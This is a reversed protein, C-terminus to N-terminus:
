EPCFADIRAEISGRHDTVHRLYRELSVPESCPATEYLDVLVVSGHLPGGDLIAAAFVEQSFLDFPELHELRVSTGDVEVPGDFEEFLYARHEDPRLFLNICGDYYWTGFSPDSVEFPVALDDEEIAPNDTTAWLLQVRDLPPTGAVSTALDALSGPPPPEPPDSVYLASAVVGSDAAVDAAMRRLAPRLDFSM